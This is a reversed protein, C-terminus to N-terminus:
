TSAALHQKRALALAGEVPEVLESRIEVGPFLVRLQNYFVQRVDSSQRFVSGTMAVRAHEDASGQRFQSAALQMEVLSHHARQSAALQTEVRAEKPFLRRIVMAAQDALRTGADTLLATAMADGEHAARLVVPFLTPFEPPPVANARQVLEDLSHLNWAKLVPDALKTEARQDLARLIASVARRGIWQASGEDSIAYGWGGARATEGRANRGYIISGTGSIAIIGPGSGFAAELAVVTDGVVDVHASTLEGLISRIRSAVDIRAAGAAGICISNIQGPSVKATECVNRIGAQLAERAQAIGVRVVNSAGTVSTALLRSEDGLACRTKTGGGDIGLYFSM